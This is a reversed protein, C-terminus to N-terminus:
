IIFSKIQRLILFPFISFCNTINLTFNTLDTYITLSLLLFIYKKFVVRENWLLIVLPIDQIRIPTQTMNVQNHQQPKTQNLKKNKLEKM